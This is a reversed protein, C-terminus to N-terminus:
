YRSSVCSGPKCHAPPSTREVLRLDSLRSSMERTINRAEDRNNIIKPSILVLLETKTDSKATSGLLGGLIPVNVLGPLGGVSANKQDSFLGGIVITENNDAVVSSTVRRQSITPTLSATTVDKVSSVEQLIDLAVSGSATIHPTVDFIIGTDRYEVSTVTVGTNVLTNQSQTTVPVQDGVVLRAPQNNTVLLNPSSIVNVHTVQNLTSLIAQANMGVTLSAGPGSVGPIGSTNNTMQASLHTGHIMKELFYQAGYQLTDTLDVEVFTAEVLVQRQPVDITRLVDKVRDFMEATGYVLLKNSTEDIVIRASAAAADAGAGPAAEGPKSGQDLVARAPDM